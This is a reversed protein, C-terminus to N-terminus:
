SVWQYQTWQVISIGLLVASILVIATHVRARDGLTALALFFPFVVLGFRPISELPWSTSPVSLPLALSLAAFLGYPAGFRRWAVVTLFCYLALFAWCEANVTIAHLVDTNVPHWHTLGLWLGGLPGAPSLERDWQKQAGVWAWPDGISSWLLLPFAAFLFLGPVFRAIARASPWAILLLPLVLAFGASRTLLALGTAVGAAGFRGHEAFVFAALALMLYLSESYAAQLFVALPSIALYLVARQAGEEGLRDRAITHLLLFSVYAAVLAIVVGALVYHDLFAVGFLTMLSPYLPFFAAAGDAAGYGHQAIKVFWETDWRAWVDLGWGLDHFEPRDWNGAYSEALPPPHPVFWLYAFVAALWIGVRSWVFILTPTRVALWAQRLASRATDSSAARVQGAQLAMTEMTRASPGRPRAQSRKAGECPPGEPVDRHVADDAGDVVEELAPLLRV